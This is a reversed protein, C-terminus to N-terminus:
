PTALGRRRALEQLEDTSMHARKFLTSPSLPDPPGGDVNACETVETVETSLMESWHENLVPHHWPHCVAPLAPVVEDLRVTSKPAYQTWESVDAWGDDELSTDGTHILEWALPPFYVSAISNIGILLGSKSRRANQGALHFGAIPGSVRATVGRSLALFMRMDDPMELPEGAALALPLDPWKEQMLHSTACMGLMISRIISGPKIVVEPLRILRPIEIRWSKVWLPRMGEAFDGYSEDYTGARQNCEECLGYMHIGGLNERGADVEHGKILLLFRKSLMRNGACQPPVHAKSMPKIDGCMGCTHKGNRTRRRGVRRDFNRRSM